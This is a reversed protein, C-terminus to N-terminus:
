PTGGPCSWLQRLVMINYPHRNGGSEAAASIGVDWQLYIELEGPMRM